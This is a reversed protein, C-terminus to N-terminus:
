PMEFRLSLLWAGVIAFAGTVLLVVEPALLSPIGVALFPVLLWSLLPGWFGNIADSFNGDLYKQAVSIYSIGDPTIEYRHYILFSIVFAFYTLLIAIVRPARLSSATDSM